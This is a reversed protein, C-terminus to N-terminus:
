QLDSILYNTIALQLNLLEEKSMTPLSYGDSGNDRHRVLTVRINGNEKAYKDISIEITTKM